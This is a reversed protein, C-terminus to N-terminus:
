AAAIDSSSIDLDFALSYNQRVKTASLASPNQVTATVQGIVPSAETIGKHLAKVIEFAVKRADGTTANAEAATLGTLDSLDISLKTGTFEYSPLIVTPAAM